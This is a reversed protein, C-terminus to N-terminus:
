QNCSKILECADGIGGMAEYHEQLLTQLDAPIERENLVYNNIANNAEFFFQMQSDKMIVNNAAELTDANGYLSINEVKTLGSVDASNIYQKSNIRESNDALVANDYKLTSSDAPKIYGFDVFIPSNAGKVAMGSNIDRCVLKNKGIYEVFDMGSSRKKYNEDVFDSLMWGNYPNACYLLPVDSVKDKNVQRAFAIEAFAGETGNINQPNLYHKLALPKCEPVEIKYICGSLGQTIRKITAIKDGLKMQFEQKTQEEFLDYKPAVIYLLSNIKDIEKIFEECSLNTAKLVDAPENQVVVDTNQSILDERLRLPLDYIKKTHVKGTVKDLFSKKVGTDVITTTFDDQAVINKNKLYEANKYSFDGAKNGTFSVSDQPLAKLAFQSNKSIEKKIKVPSNCNINELKM